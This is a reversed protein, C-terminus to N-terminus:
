IACIKTEVKLIKWPSCAGPGRRSIGGQGGGGGVGRLLELSQPFSQCHFHRSIHVSISVNPTLNKKLHIIKDQVKHMCTAVDHLNILNLTSVLNQQNKDDKKINM